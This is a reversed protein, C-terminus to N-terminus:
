LSKMQEEVDDQLTQLYVIAKEAKKVIDLCEGMQLSKSSYKEAWEVHQDIAEVIVKAHTLNLTKIQVSM